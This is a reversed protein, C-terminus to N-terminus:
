ILLPVAVPLFSNIRFFTNEVKEYRGAFYWAAAILVLQFGFCMVIWTLGVKTMSALLSAAAVMVAGAPKILYRWGLMPLFPNSKLLEVTLLQAEGPSSTMTASYRQIDRFPMSGPALSREFSRLLPGSLVLTRLDEPNEVKPANEPKLPPQSLLKKIRM